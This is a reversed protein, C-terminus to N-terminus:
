DRIKRIKRIPRIPLPSFRLDATIILLKSNDAIRYPRIADANKDPTVSSKHPLRPQEFYIGNQVGAGEVPGAETSGATRQTSNAALPAM